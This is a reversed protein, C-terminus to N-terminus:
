QIVNQFHKRYAAPTTGIYKKFTTSFHSADNFGLREGIDGIPLGTNMLLNQAEGIRRLMVYRIPSLGTEDKFIHGITYKSIYFIQELQDLSVDEMFHADLYESIRLVLENNNTHTQHNVRSRKKLKNLVIDLIARSLHECTSQYMESKGHLDYLTYFINELEQREETFNLIPLEEQTTLTNEPLQQSRINKMVSCYSIMSKGQSPTEGHFTGANCIIMNGPQVLYEHDRVYYSGGGEMIYLLELVDDHKHIMQPHRRHYNEDVYHITVFYDKDKGM